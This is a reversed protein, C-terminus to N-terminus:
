TPSHHCISQFLCCGVMLRIFQPLLLSIDTQQVTSANTPLSVNPLSLFQCTGNVPFNSSIDGPAMSSLASQPLQLLQGNASSTDVDPKITVNTVSAVGNGGLLSRLHANDVTAIAPMTGAGSTSLFDIVKNVDIATTTLAPTTGNISESQNLKQTLTGLTASTPVAVAASKAISCEMLKEALTAGTPELGQSSSGHNSDTSPSQQVDVSMSQQPSKNKRSRPNIPMGPINGSEELASRRLGASLHFHVTALQVAMFYSGM